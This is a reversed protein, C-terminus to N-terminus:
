QVLPMVVGEFGWIIAIFSDEAMHVKLFNFDQMVIIPDKLLNMGRLKCPLSKLFTICRVIVPM